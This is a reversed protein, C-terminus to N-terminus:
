LIETQTNTEDGSRGFSTPRQHLYKFQEFLFAIYQYGRQWVEGTQLMFMSTTCASLAQYKKARSCRWPYLPPLTVKITHSLIRFSLVPFLALTASLKSCTDLQQPAFITCVSCQVCLQSFLACINGKQKCNHWTWTLISVLSKRRVCTQTGSLPFGTFSALISAYRRHTPSPYM